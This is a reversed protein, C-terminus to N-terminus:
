HKASLLLKAFATAKAYQGNKDIKLIAENKWFENNKPPTKPMSCSDDPNLATKSVKQLKLKGPFNCRM